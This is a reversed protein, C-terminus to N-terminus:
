WKSNFSCISLNRYECLIWRTIEVVISRYWLDGILQICQLICIIFYCECLSVSFLCLSLLWDVCVFLLYLCPLCASRDLSCVIWRLSPCWVGFHNFSQVCARVCACLHTSVTFFSAEPFHGSLAAHMHKPSLFVPLGAAFLGRRLRSRRQQRQQRTRRSRRRLISTLQLFSAANSIISSVQKCWLYNRTHTHTNTIVARSVFVCLSLQSRQQEEIRIIRNSNHSRTCMCIYFRIHTM